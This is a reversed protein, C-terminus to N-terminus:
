MYPSHMQEKAIQTHKMENEIMSLIKEEYDYDKGTFSTGKVKEINLEELKIEYKVQSL